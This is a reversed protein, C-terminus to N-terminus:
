PLREGFDSLASLKSSRPGQKVGFQGMVQRGIQLVRAQFAANARPLGMQPIIQLGIWVCDLSVSSAASSTPYLLGSPPFRRITTDVRLHGYHGCIRASFADGLKILYSCDTDPCSLPHDSNALVQASTAVAVVSSWFM